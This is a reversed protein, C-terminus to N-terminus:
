VTGKANPPAPRAHTRRQDRAPRPRDLLRTIAWEGCEAIVAVVFGGALALPWALLRWASVFLWAGGFVSYLAIYILANRYRHV